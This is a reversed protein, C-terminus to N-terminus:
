TSIAYLQDNWGYNVGRIAVSYRPESIQPTQFSITGFITGIQGNATNLNFLILIKTSNQPVWPRVRVEVDMCVSAGSARIRKTNM